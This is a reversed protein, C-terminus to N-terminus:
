HFINVPIPLLVMLKSNLRKVRKPDAMAMEMLKENEMIKKMEPATFQGNGFELSFTTPKMVLSSVKATTAILGGSLPLEAPPEEFNFKGMFSDM